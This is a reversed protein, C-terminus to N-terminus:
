GVLAIQVPYAPRGGGDVQVTCHAYSALTSLSYPRPVVLRQTSINSGLTGNGDYKINDMLFNFLIYQGVLILTALPAYSILILILKDEHSPIRYQYIYLRPIMVNSSQFM